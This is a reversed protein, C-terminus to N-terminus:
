EIVRRRLAHAKEHIAESALVETKKETKKRSM